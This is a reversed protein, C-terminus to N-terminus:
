AGHMLQMGGAMWAGGDVVLVSGTIYSAADSALFVAADGIEDSRGFRQLPVSKEMKDRMGKPMLRTMGETDDIPGPAICNVRIGLPGWEVALHRTMADIAAKAAGAHTQFPVGTYHLTASINIIQGGNAKLAKDFAARCVTYTGVADIDMVTRYGKASLGAAPALFNGAAGNVVIDLRGFRELTADIAAEVAAPERVDAAVALCEGGTKEQLEAAAADLKEQTRSVIAAKCGHAMLKETIGKCIGSGGGTVLAVRGALIDDRFISM